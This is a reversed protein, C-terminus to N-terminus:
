AGANQSNAQTHPSPHHFSLTYKCRIFPSLFLVPWLIAAATFAYLNRAPLPLSALFRSIPAPGPTATGGSPAAARWATASTATPASAPASRIIRHWQHPSSCQLCLTCVQSGRGCSVTCQNWPTWQTWYPCPGPSCARSETSLGDAISATRSQILSFPDQSCWLVAGSRLLGSAPERPRGRLHCQLGGLPGLNGVPRLPGARVGGVRLVARPVALHGTQRAGIGDQAAPVEGPHSCQRTRSQLGAGCSVSCSSLGSWPGWEPCSRGECGRGPELRTQLSSRFQPLILRVPDGARAWPLRGWESLKPNEFVCCPLM